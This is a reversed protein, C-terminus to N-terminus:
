DDMSCRALSWELGGSRERSAGMTGAAVTGCGGLLYMISSDDRGVALSKRSNNLRGVTTLSLPRQRILKIRLGTGGQYAVLCTSTPRPTINYQDPGKGSGCHM